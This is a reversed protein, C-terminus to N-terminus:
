RPMKHFLRLPLGNVKDMNYLSPGSNNLVYAKTENMATSTWYYGREGRMTPTERYGAYPIYFFSTETIKVRSSFFNNISNFNITSQFGNKLYTTKYYFYNNLLGEAEEKSPLHWGNDLSNVYQLADQYSFYTGLCDLYKDAGNNVVCYGDESNAGVNRMDIAVKQKVGNMDLEAVIAERGDLYGVAGVPTNATIPLKHFPRVTRQASGAGNDEFIPKSSNYHLLFSIMRYPRSPDQKYYGYDFNMSPVDAAQDKYRHQGSVKWGAHPILIYSNNAVEFRTYKGDSSFVYPLSMFARLEKITPMRWGKGWSDNDQAQIAADWTIFNGYATESSAGVNKTAVAMKGIGDGLDVVVCERGELMGVTGVPSDWTLPVNDNTLGTVTLTAPTIQARAINLSKDAKLEKTFKHGAFDSIEIKVGTYDNRLLSIYFPKAESTLEVGSAGCNLTVYKHSLLEVNDFTAGGDEGIRISGGSLPQNASIKIEKVTGSGKLDLRLLGGINKFDGLIVEGNSVSIKAAMPFSFASNNPAYYQEEALFGVYGFTLNDGYAAYETSAISEPVAPGTFVGSKTGAGETLTYTFYEKVSEGGYFRIQDGESWLVDYGSQDNGSLTTKTSADDGINAVITILGSPEPTVSQEPTLAEKACSALGLTIAAAAIYYFTKKM